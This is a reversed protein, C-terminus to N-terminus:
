FVVSRHHRFKDSKRGIVGLSAIHDRFEVLRFDISPYKLTKLGSNIQNIVVLFNQEPVFASLADGPM